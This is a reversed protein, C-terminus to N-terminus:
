GGLLASATVPTLGRAALGDLIAPVAAITDAYGFHLSIVAGPAVAALTRGTIAAAGPSQYDLPDVDFGLVV